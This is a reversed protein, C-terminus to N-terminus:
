RGRRAWGVGQHLRGEELGRETVFADWAPTAWIDDAILLGDASFHAFAAEFEFMMCPTSHESDHVFLDVPGVDDLLPGLLEQSKGLRLEWRKRLSEPVVWGPERDAPVAAAGFEAFTEARFEALDEDVHYPYDISYLRGRDNAELALLITLSSLGNCVGTEVVIDPRRSRILAYLRSSAVPSLAGFAAEDSPAVARRFEATAQRRRRLTPGTRFEDTYRALDAGPVLRDALDRQIATNTLRRPHASRYLREALRQVRQRGASM